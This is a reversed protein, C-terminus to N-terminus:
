YTITYQVEDNGINIPIAYDTSSNDNHVMTYHLTITSNKVVTFYSPNNFIDDEQIPHLEEEANPGEIYVNRVSDFGPASDDYTLVLNTLEDNRYLVVPPLLYKYNTFEAQAIDSARRFQYENVAVNNYPRGNIFITALTSEHKPAPFVLIINGNSDTTSGAITEDRNGNHTEVDVIIGELPNGNRDQVHTEVVLRTTADYQIECSIM